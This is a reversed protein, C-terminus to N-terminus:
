RSVAFSYIAVSSIIFVLRATPSASSLLLDCEATSDNPDNEEELPPQDIPWHNYVSDQKACPLASENCSISLQYDIVVYSKLVTPDFDLAKITNSHTSESSSIHSPSGVVWKRCFSYIKIM